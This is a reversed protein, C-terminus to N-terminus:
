TKWYAAKLTKTNKKWSYKKEVMRRGNGILKRFLVGDTLVRVTDRALEVPSNSILAESGHKVALGEIGTPTTIVPLGTAM